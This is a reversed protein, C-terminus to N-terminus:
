VKLEIYEGDEFLDPRCCCFCQANRCSKTYAHACRSCVCNGSM